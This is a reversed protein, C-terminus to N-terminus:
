VMEFSEVRTQYSPPHVGRSARQVYSRQLKTLSHAPDSATYIVSKHIPLSPNFVLSADRTWTRTNTVNTDIALDVPRFLKQFPQVVEALEENHSNRFSTSSSSSERDSQHRFESKKWDNYWIKMTQSNSSIHTRTKIM